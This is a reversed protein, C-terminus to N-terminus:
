SARIFRMAFKEREKSVFYKKKLEKWHKQDPEDHLKKFNIKMYNEISRKSTEIAYVQNNHPIKMTIRTITPFEHLLRLSEEMFVKNVTDMLSFYTNFETESLSNDKSAAQYDSFSPFYQIYAENQNRIEAVKVLTFGRISPLYAKFQNLEDSTLPPYSPSANLVSPEGEMPAASPEPGCAVLSISIIVLSLMGILGIKKLM